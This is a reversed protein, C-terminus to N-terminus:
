QERRGLNHLDFRGQLLTLVPLRMPLLTHNAQRNFNLTLPVMDDAQRKMLKPEVDEVISILAFRAAVYYAVLGESGM